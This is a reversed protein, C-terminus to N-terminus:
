ASDEESVKGARIKELLAGAIEGEVVRPDDRWDPYTLPTVRYRQFITEVSIRTEDESLRELTITLKMRNPFFLLRRKVKTYAVFLGRKDRTYIEYKQALLADRTQQWAGDFPAQLTISDVRPPLPASQADPTSKCGAAFLGCVLILCPAVTYKLVHVGTGSRVWLIVCNM